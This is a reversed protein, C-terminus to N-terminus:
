ERLGDRTQVSLPRVPDGKAIRTPMECSESCIGATMKMGGTAFQYDQAAISQWDVAVHHLMMNVHMAAVAMGFSFVNANSAVTDSGDVVYSPDDLSGDRESVVDSTTYQGNCRLCQLGPGIKHSRWHAASLRGRTAVIRIGGDIVPILHGYAIFNLVDRAVPRDVCSFILDCDLAALYANTDQIPLPVARIDISQATASNKLHRSSLEVKLVGVDARAAHLTRDLNHEEIKDHDILTIQQVGLRAVAEAVMSGVSGLGVVGIHLRALDPQVAGLAEATRRLANAAYPRPALREDYHAVLNEPGVIRVSRCRRLQMGGGDREWFRGSWYGDSGMTLGVLPLDAAHAPPALVDGEARADDPSLGQWGPGPHSHMFALGANQERAKRVARRVYAQTFSANGHLEREGDEPLIVDDILASRRTLGTSPRWLAFCLEEQLEDVSFYRLLHARARENVDATLAVTFTM